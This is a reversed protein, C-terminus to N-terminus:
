FVLSYIFLNDSLEEDTTSATIKFTENRSIVFECPEPLELNLLLNEKNLIAVRNYISTPLIDIKEIQKAILPINRYITLRDDYDVNKVENNKFDRISM